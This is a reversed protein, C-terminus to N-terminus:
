RGDPAADGGGGALADTLGPYVYRAKHVHLEMLTESGVVGEVAGLREAMLRWLDDHDRCILHMYLDASGACSSLYMVEPWTALTAAVSRHAAPEVRILVSAQVAFGLRFPDALALIRLVGEEQLRTARFRVTAEAVGLSRAIARFPRRGDVQLQSIIARDLADLERVRGSAGM